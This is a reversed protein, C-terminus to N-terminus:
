ENELFWEYGLFIMTRCVEIMIVASDRKSQVGLFWKKSKMDLQGLSDAYSSTEAISSSRGVISSM